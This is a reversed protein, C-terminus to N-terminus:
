FLKLVLVFIESEGELDPIDSNLAYGVNLNIYTKWPGVLNATLGMGTFSQSGIGLGTERVRGNELVVDFQIVDFLNFAYGARGILGRDFRVGSGAFGSLRDDGFLSFEFKSFRDLDNGALYNGSIRIKQFAPLYWEKFGVLRWRRFSDFVPEAVSPVFADATSDFTLFTDNGLDFLGFEEWDSRNATSVDGGFSWGRRNFEFDLTAGIETHDQPLRYELDQPNLPDMRLTDFLREADDHDFFNRTRVSGILNVKWFPGLPRGIRLAINQTRQEITELLLERDGVFSKDEFKIASLAADVTIDFKSGGVNPKSLNAFAIVGAFLVNVQVNKGFLDYNFYSVGGLPTFGDSSGDNFGGAAALLASHELEMKVTRSGDPQRELYRFGDDTDRLMQNDSAYSAARRREFEEKSPNIDFDLFEVNRLVVFNRGTASWIQQGEIKSLMRLPQGQDDRYKGFIDLEENSLVPASLNTQVVNAKVREFTEVDIWLRGRYLSEDAREPIPEFALIYAQRGEVKGMGVRRYRYTRDLALDLPLSMVKEPQFFPIEPINKWRVKTGNVYYDIQEWEVATGREWYYLSDISLDITGGTGLKFHFDIRARGVWRDLRDDQERQVQQYRAIIEEATLERTGTLTVEEAPAEPGAVGKDFRVLLPEKSRPVLIARGGKAEVGRLRVDLQGTPDVRTPNRLLATDVELRDEPFEFPEGPARVVIITAFEKDNFFRAIAQGGALPQGSKDLVTLRGLPAPAYGDALRAHVGVLWDIQLAANSPLIAIGREAGLALAAVAAAAADWPDDGASAVAWLQSAPPHGLQARRVAMHWESRSEASQNSDVTFPLVDVYAAVDASWLQEQWDLAGLELTAQVISLEHGRAAAEARLALATDKLIFAYGDVDLGEVSPGTVGLVQYHDVLQGLHAVASRVYDRWAVTSEAVRRPSGELVLVTALGRTTATQLKEQVQTWDFETASTEIQEWDAIVYTLARSPNAAGAQAPLGGDEALYGLGREVDPGAWVPLTVIFWLVLGLNSRFMLNKM